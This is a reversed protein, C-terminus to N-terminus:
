GEPDRIETEHRDGQMISPLGGFPRGDPSKTPVFCSGVRPDFGRIPFTEVFWLLPRTDLPSGRIPFFLISRNPPFHYSNPGTMSPPIASHNFAATKFVTSDFPETPEFGVGEAVFCDPSIASDASPARRSLSHPPFSGGLTRIGREGGNRDLAGIRSSDPSKEDRGPARHGRSASGWTPLGARRRGEKPVRRGAMGARRRGHDAMRWGRVRNGATKRGQQCFNRVMFSQISGLWAATDHFERGFDTHRKGIRLAPRADVRGPLRRIGFGIRGADGAESDPKETGPRLMSRFMSRIRPIGAIGRASRRDREFVAPGSGSITEPM